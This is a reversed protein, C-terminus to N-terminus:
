AEAPEFRRGDFHFELFDGDDDLVGLVLNLPEGFYPSGACTSAECTDFVPGTLVKRVIVVENYAPAKRNKLGPKWRVLQGKRFTHPTDITDALEALRRGHEAAPGEEAQSPLLQIASTNEKPHSM